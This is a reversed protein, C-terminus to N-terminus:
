LSSWLHLAAYARYPRWAEARDTLQAPSPRESGNALAKLLGLDSAPFADPDRLARLAVYQATWPGIGPLKSAALREASSLVSPDHAIAAALGSLCKARAKPLGIVSLDHSALAGPDPFLRSVAPDDAGPLPAGFREVLRAALTTAAAVSIQQGLVARVALEFPDWAGPVRLGPRRSVLPKLARDRSLHAGIREVDADVDFLRRLRLVAPWLADLRSLRLTALLYPKGEAPRVEVTGSAAGLSVARRYGREDVAEVGRIARPGLWGLLGSWDYAGSYPLRLTIGASRDGRAARRLDSPARGLERRLVENFRRISGFGAALAVESMPLATDHLLAKAFLVRRTQAVELPSAGVHEAFLRRLQREGVGLRAALPEVAGEDLAGEAILQLARSVAAATGNWAPVGPAVEPRCRLCPRYGAAQAAAASPFFTCNSARPTRAPCIPRCYIGTTKVATFFRGDFRADRAQIARYCAQPDLAGLPKAGTAARAIGPADGRREEESVVRDEEDDSRASSPGREHLETRWVARHELKMGPLICTEMSSRQRSESTSLRGQSAM